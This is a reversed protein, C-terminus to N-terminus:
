PKMYVRKDVTVEPVLNLLCLYLGHLVMWSYDSLQLVLQFMQEVFHVFTRM